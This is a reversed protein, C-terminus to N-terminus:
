RRPSRTAGYIDIVLIEEREHLYQYYLHYKSRSLLIRRVPKGQHVIRIGLEPNALLLQKIHVLDDLFITRVAPRNERWWRHIRQVERDALRTFM